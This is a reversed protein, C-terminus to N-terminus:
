RLYPGKAWCVVSRRRGFLVPTVRHEVWSPFIVADGRQLKIRGSHRIEFHGGVYEDENSLMLVLTIKRHLDDAKRFPDCDQHWDYHGLFQYEGLQVPDRTTIDYNWGELKNITKCINLLKENAPHDDHLSIVSTKRQLANQRPADFDVTADHLGRYHQEIDECEADNFAYGVRYRNLQM